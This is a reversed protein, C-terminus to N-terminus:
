PVLPKGSKDGSKIGIKNDLYFSLRGTRGYREPEAGATYGKKDAALTIHFKYGTSETSEIDKPVLGAAILTPLDAFVGGHQASYAIEALSIRQLMAEVESHHTRIRENLFYDKGGRKVGAESTKDGIIWGTGRRMLMLSEDAGKAAGEDSDVKIFVTATDGSIQEGSIQINEPVGAAMREFDPQLEALDEASLGEFAPKYISLAFAERFRKQRLQKYFEIVTQSPTPTSQGQASVVVVAARAVEGDAPPGPLLAYSVILIGPALRRFTRTIM